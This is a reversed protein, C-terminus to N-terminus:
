PSKTGYSEAPLIDCFLAHGINACLWGPEGIDTIQRCCDSKKLSYEAHMLGRRTVEIESAKFHPEQLQGRGPGSPPQHSTQLFPPMCRHACRVPM